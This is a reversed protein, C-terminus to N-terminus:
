LDSCQHRERLDELQDAKHWRFLPVALQSPRTGYVSGLRRCTTTKRRVQRLIGKTTKPAALRSVLEIQPHADAFQGKMVGCDVQTPSQSMVNRIRSTLSDM